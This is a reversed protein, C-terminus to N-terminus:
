VARGRHPVCVRVCKKAVNNHQALKRDCRILSGVTGSSTLFGARTRKMRCILRTTAESQIIGRYNCEGGLENKHYRGVPAM